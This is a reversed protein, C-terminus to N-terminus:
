TGTGEHTWVYFQYASHRVCGPSDIPWVDLGWHVKSTTPSVALEQIVWLRSWYKKRFLMWLEACVSDRLHLEGFGFEDEDDSDGWHFEDFELVDILVRWSKWLNNM